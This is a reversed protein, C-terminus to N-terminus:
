INLLKNIRKRLLSSILNVVIASAIIIALIIIINLPLMPTLAMLSLPGLIIFQHVLYIDYSYKDSYKCFSIIPKPLDKKFIATFIKKLILFLSTGLAVHAYKCMKSYYFKSTENFDVEVIYDVVIQVTNSAIAFIIVLLCVTNYLKTKGKLSLHGLFYGLLYCIIWAAVFFYFFLEIIAAICFSLIIFKLAINKDKNKEFFRSLPPTILYCIICYPIYWLHEGGLIAVRTFLLRILSTISFSKVIFITAIIFMPITVIYYDILIKSLNKKYFKFDNDILGKRGYLYGSMCLFIQVGVNFWWMLEQNLYQLMHCIIIASTALFRVISISYDNSARSSM